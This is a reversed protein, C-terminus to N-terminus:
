GRCTCWYREISGFKDYNTNLVFAVRKLRPCIDFWGKVETEWKELRTLLEPTWEPPTWNPTNFINLEPLKSAEASPDRRSRAHARWRQVFGMEVDRSVHYVIEFAPMTYRESLGPLLPIQNYTCKGKYSRSNYDSIHMAVVLSQLGKNTRLIQELRQPEINERNVQLRLYRIYDVTFIPASANNPLNDEIRSWRLRADDSHDLTRIARYMDKYIESGYKHDTLKLLHGRNNRMLWGLLEVPDRQYQHQQRWVSSYLQQLWNITEMACGSGVQVAINRNHLTRLCRVFMDLDIQSNHDFRFTLHKLQQFVPLAEPAYQDTWPVSLWIVRPCSQLIEKLLSQLPGLRPDVPNWHLETINVFPQLCKLSRIPMDNTIPLNVHEGVHLVRLQMAIATRVTPFGPVNPDMSDLKAVKLGYINLAKAILREVYEKAPSTLAGPIVLFEIYGAIVDPDPNGAMLRDVRSRDELILYSYLAAKAVPSLARCGTVIYFLQNGPLIELARKLVNDPLAAAIVDILARHKRYRRLEEESYNGEMQSKGISVEDTRFILFFYEQLKRSHPQYQRNRCYKV